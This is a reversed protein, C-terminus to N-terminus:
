NVTLPEVERLLAASRDALADGDFREWEAKWFQAAAYGEDVFGVGLSQMHWDRLWLVFRPLALGRRQVETREALRAPGRGQLGGLFSKVTVGAPLLNNAAVLTFRALDPRDATRVAEGFAWLTHEQALGFARMKDWDGIQDKSREMAIWRSALWQQMAEVTACGPGNVWPGFNPSETAGFDVPYALRILGNRVFATHQRLGAGTETERVMDYVLFQLLCDDPTLDSEPLDIASTTDAPKGATLWILLELSQRSFCLPRGVAPWRDWLRGELASGNSLFRDRRWGGARALFLLCGKALSDTILEVCGPTLAAPRSTRESLLPLASEPSGQRLVAYLIRLLRAEFATVVRPASM